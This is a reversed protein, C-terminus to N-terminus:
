GQKDSVPAGFHMELMKAIEGTTAGHAVYEFGRMSSGKQYLPPPHDGWNKLEEASPGAGTSRLRGAKAVVLDYTKGDRTEWHVKLKFREALLVQM